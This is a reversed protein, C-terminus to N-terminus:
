EFADKILDLILRLYISFLQKLQLLNYFLYNDIITQYSNSHLILVLYAKAHNYFLPSISLFISFTLLDKLM